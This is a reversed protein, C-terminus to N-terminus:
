VAWIASPILASAAIFSSAPTGPTTGARHCGADIQKLSAPTDVAPKPTDSASIGAQCGPSTPPAEHESQGRKQMPSGATSLTLAVKDTRGM